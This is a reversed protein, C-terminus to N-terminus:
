SQRLAQEIATGESTQKPIWNQKKNKIGLPDKLKVPLSIPTVFIFYFITLIVRSNFDGIKKAIKKWWEWIKKIM